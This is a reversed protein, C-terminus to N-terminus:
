KMKTLLYITVYDKFELHGGKVLVNRAGGNLLKNAAYIM